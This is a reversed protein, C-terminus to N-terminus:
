MGRLPRLVGFQREPDCAISHERHVWLKRLQRAAQSGFTSEVRTELSTAGQDAVGDLSAGLQILLQLVDFDRLRLAAQLAPEATDCFPSSRVEGVAQRLLLFRVASENVTPSTFLLTHLTEPTFYTHPAMPLAAFIAAVRAEEEEDAKWPDLVLVGAMSEDAASTAPPSHRSKDKSLPPSLPRRGSSPRGSASTAVANGAASIYGLGGPMSSASSSSSASAARIVTSRQRSRGGLYNLTRFYLAVRSDVKDFLTGLARRMLAVTPTPYHGEELRTHLDFWFTDVFCDLHSTSLLAKGLAAWTGVLEPLPCRENTGFLQYLPASQCLRQVQLGHVFRPLALFLLRLTGCRIRQLPSDKAHHQMKDHLIQAFCEAHADPRVTATTVVSRRVKVGGALETSTNSTCSANQSASSPRSSM